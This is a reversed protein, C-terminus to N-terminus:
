SSRVFGAFKDGRGKIANLGELPYLQWSCVHNKSRTERHKEMETIVDTEGQCLFRLRGSEM